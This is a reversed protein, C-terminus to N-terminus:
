WMCCWIAENLRPFVVLVLAGERKEREADVHKGEDRERERERERERKRDRKGKGWARQVTAFSPM